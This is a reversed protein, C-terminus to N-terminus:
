TRWTGDFQRMELEPLVKEWERAGLVEIGRFGKHLRQSSKRYDLSRTDGM